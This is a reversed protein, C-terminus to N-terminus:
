ATRLNDRRLQTWVMRRKESTVWNPPGYERQPTRILVLESFSFSYLIDSDTHQNRKFNVGRVCHKMLLRTFPRKLGAACTNHAKRTRARSAWSSLSPPLSWSSLSWHWYYDVDIIISPSLSPSLLSRHRSHHHHGKHIALLLLKWWPAHSSPPPFKHCIFHLFNSWLYKEQFTCFFVNKFVAHCFIYWSLFNWIEQCIWHPVSWSELNNQTKKKDKRKLYITLSRCVYNTVKSHCVNGECLVMWCVVNQSLTLNYKTSKTWYTSLSMNIGLLSSAGRHYSGRESQANVGKPREPCLRHRLFLLLLDSSYWM